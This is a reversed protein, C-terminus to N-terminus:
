DAEVTVVEGTALNTRARWTTPEDPDPTSGATPRAEIDVYTTGDAVAVIARYDYWTLDTDSLDTAPDGAVAAAVAPVVAYVELPQAPRFSNAPLAGDWGDPTSLEVPYLPGADLLPPDSTGEPEAQDGCADEGPRLGHVQAAVTTPRSSGEAAGTSWPQTQPGTQDIAMTETLAAAEDGEVTTCLRLGDWGLTRDTLPTDLPWLLPELGTTGGDDGTVWPIFSVDLREPVYDEPPDAVLDADDALGDLEDLTTMLSARAAQQDASLGLGGVDGPDTLAYVSLDGPQGDLNVYVSTSPMDTISPEGYATDELEIDGLLHHARDIGEPTLRYRDLDFPGSGATFVSGDDHLEFILGSGEPPEGMGGGAEIRAEIHPDLEGAPPDAPGYDIITNNEQACSALTAFTAVAALVTVV